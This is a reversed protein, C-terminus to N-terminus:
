AERAEAMKTLASQAEESGAYQDLQAMRDQLGPRDSIFTGIIFHREMQSSDTSLDGSSSIYARLESPDVQALSDGEIELKLIATKVPAVKRTLLLAVRDATREIVQAWTGLLVRFLTAPGFLVQLPLSADRMFTLVNEMRVHGAKIHGLEHALAVGLEEGTLTNLISRTIVVAPKAGAITVVQAVEEDLVYVEPEKLALGLCQSRVLQHIEPYNNPLVKAQRGSEKIRKRMPRGALVPVVILCLIPWLVLLAPIQWLFLESRMAILLTIGAPILCCVAVALMGQRYMTTERPFRFDSDSLAVRARAKAKQDDVKVQLPV